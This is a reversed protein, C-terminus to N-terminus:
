NNKTENDTSYLDKAYNITKKYQNMLESKESLPIQNDLPNNRLAILVFDTRIARLDFLMLKYTNRKADIQLLTDIATIITIIAGLILILNDENRKIGAWVTIVGGLFIQLIRISYFLWSYAIAKKQVRDIETQIKLYFPDRIENDKMNNFKNNRNVSAALKSIRAIFRGQIVM